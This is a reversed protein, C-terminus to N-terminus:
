PKVKLRDTIERQIQSAPLGKLAGFLQIHEAATLESWLIDFQPCVGMVKRIKDIDKQLSLGLIKADGETPDLLGTLM